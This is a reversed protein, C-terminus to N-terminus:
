TLKSLLCCHDFTKHSNARLVHALGRIIVVMISEEVFFFFLRPFFWYSTGTRFRSKTRDFIFRVAEVVAILRVAQWKSTFICTHDQQMHKSSTALLSIYCSLTLIIGVMNVTCVCVGSRTVTIRLKSLSSDVELSSYERWWSSDSCVPHM